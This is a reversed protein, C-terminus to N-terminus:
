RRLLFAVGLLVVIGLIVAGAYFMPTLDYPEDHVIEKTEVTVTEDGDVTISYPPDLVTNGHKVAKLEHDDDTNAYIQIVQGITATFPGTYSTIDADGVSYTVVAGNGINFTITYEIATASLTITDDADIPGVLGEDVDAHLASLTVDYGTAPSTIVQVYAGAPVEITGSTWDKLESFTGGNGISYQAFDIGEPLESLTVEFKPEMVEASIDDDPILVFTASLALMIVLAASTVIIRGNINRNHEM